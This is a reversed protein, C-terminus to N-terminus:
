VLRLGCLDETASRRQSQAYWTWMHGSGAFKMKETSRRVPLEIPMNEQGGRREAREFEPTTPPEDQLVKELGSDLVKM